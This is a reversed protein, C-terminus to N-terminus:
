MKEQPYGPILLVLQSNKMKNNHSLTLRNLNLINLENQKRVAQINKFEKLVRKLEYVQYDEDENLLHKRATKYMYHYKKPIIKKFLIRFRGEKKTITKKKKPKLTVKTMKRIIEDM